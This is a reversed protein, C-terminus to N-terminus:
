QVRARRQQFLESLEEALIPSPHLVGKSKHQLVLFPQWIEPESICLSIKRKVMYNFYFTFSTKKLCKKRKTQKWAPDWGRLM